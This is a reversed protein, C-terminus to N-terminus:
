PKRPETTNDKAPAAPLKEQAKVKEAEQAVERKIEQNIDRGTDIKAVQPDDWQGTVQYEFAFAQDIPDRLVKNALWVSAGIVPNVLMTGVALTEGLAPQVRVHLNQTERTLDIEGNLRVKAAPGNIVLEKTNMIGQTLTVDGRINDFAFGDSFIDKFDLTIRRPLSQLSLVGLLRGIGPELKKFQGNQMDVRLKGNLTPYDLSFPPGNWSLSADLTASGKRMTDPYGIRTLLHELSKAKLQLNIQTDHQNPDPRWKGEASLSGDENSANFRTHWYGNRNEAELSVTGWEHGRMSLRDIILSLAPLQSVSSDDISALQTVEKNPDPIILQSLRGSIRGPKGEQGPLWDLNANVGKSRFDGKWNGASQLATFRVDQVSRNMFVLEATRLDVQTFPQQAVKSKPLAPGAPEAAAFMRRWFDVDIKQLQASLLVGKEPLRLPESGGMQLLGRQFEPSGAQRLFQGRLFKGLRFDSQERGPQAANKKNRGGEPPLMKREFRLEMPANASKNFPEPLSSSIGVLDSVFRVDVDNKRITIHGKWRSSGSLQDFLPLPQQKRLAAISFQGDVLAEIQGDANTNLNLSAPAGLVNFRADRVKIGDGTFDLKGHAETLPPLVSDLQLRNNDFRYSGETTSDDINHLALKLKLDLEGNGVASMPATFHNIRAGVPSAEIFKLFEQTAGKAHGSIWLTQDTLSELDALVVEAQTITADLIKGSRAKIEMREGIFALDGQIDHIAPWGEAPTLSADEAKVLVKFTGSGDRFPFKAVDGKLALKVDHSHGKTINHRVWDRTEQNVALPLYRWVATGSARSLAAQLDITGPAAGEAAYSGSATGALDANEFRAKDLTLSYKAGSKKWHLEAELTDLAIRPEAFLAPLDLSAQKSDLRIKGGQENGEMSGTLNRVGPLAGSAAMGANLLEAKFAYSPRSGSRDWQLNLNRMEGSAETQSLLTRAQEPLPMYAALATLRTLNLLNASVELSRLSGDRNEALAFRFNTPPVEIGERTKLSLDRAEFTYREQDRSGLLRGQLRDLHLMPLDKGLRLQVQSLALDATARTIEKQAFNLWVRLGGSGHPLDIPYDAWQRWVALDAYDLETYIEGKWSELVDLDRGKFNGRLDLRAALAAPPQATLAFRHRNGNNVLNLNVQSLVLEPAKRKLDHWSIAANRIIIQEQALLWDSFRSDDNEMNLPLGAVFVQGDAERRITLVPGDIVLRHMRVDLHLLSSWGIVAEVTDFGLAARGAQDAIHLGHLTLHPRLGHWDAEIANISVPLQLSRSLAQELDTRYDAIHPLIAYRLTLFLGAFGFYLVALSWLLPRRIASWLSLCRIFLARGAASLSTM